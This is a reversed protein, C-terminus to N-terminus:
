KSEVLLKFAIRRGYGQGFVLAFWVRTMGDLAEATELDGICVPHLGLDKILHEAVDRAAPHCCYFLDLQVGGIETQEFNEWGLTSFARILSATPIKDALFTINNMKTSRPNNTTDIIIKGALTEVQASVFDVIASGPLALVVVDGFNVAKGITDVEGTEQLDKYRSDQPERVGYHIEHGAAAWKKGLTSGINGAGIIGIKM